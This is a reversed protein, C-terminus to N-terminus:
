NAVNITEEGRVIELNVIKLFTEPNELSLASKLVENVHEFPCIELGEKIDNQIEELDKINGFPIIIKKIGAQKAALMKEKLGGIPLVRGRITVEGTMAVDQRVPVGVVASTLATVMSIGASPGDKPTAGEPVHIHIDNKEFWDLSIGLKDSISRVYSISAKASEQMVEGLKGTIQIKGTGPMAVVEITLLEGGVSTWALGNVLGIQPSKEINTADYKKPGLYTKLNEPEVLFKTGIPPKKEVVETAVKRAITHLLRELERVGAERSYFRIIEMMTNDPIELVYDKLGNNQVAKQILYNKGIQLKENSTYGPIQIIEMRDRLPVPIRTIDNATMIFM